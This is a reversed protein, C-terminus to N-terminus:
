PTYVYVDATWFGGGYRVVTHDLVSGTSQARFVVAGWQGPAPQSASGDGNTDGAITDDKLSTFTIPNASDTEATLTGYVDLTHCCEYFKLTTRPALTLRAGGVVTLDGWIVFPFGDDGDWTVNGA